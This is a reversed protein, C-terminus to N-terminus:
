LNPTNMRPRSAAVLTEARVAKSRDRRLIELVQEAHAGRVQCALMVRRHPKQDVAIKELVDFPTAPNSALWFLVEDDFGAEFVQRLLDPSSTNQALFPRLAPDKLLRELIEASVAPNRALEVRAPFSHYVLRRAVRDDIQRNAAVQAATDPGPRDLLADFLEPDAVIAGLEATAAKM